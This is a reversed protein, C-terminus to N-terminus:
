PPDTPPDATPAPLAAQLFAILTAWDRFYRIEGDPLCQVRGRWEVSEADLAEPWVRLMFLYPPNQIKSKPNQIEDPM